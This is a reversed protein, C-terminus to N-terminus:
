LDSPATAKKCEHYNEFRYTLSYNFVISGSLTGGQRLHLEIVKIKDHNRSLRWIWEATGVFVESHTPRGYKDILLERIPDFTVDLGRAGIGREGRVACAGGKRTGDIVIGYFPSKGKYERTEWGYGNVNWGDDPKLPDGMCVGLPCAAATNGITLLTVMLALALLAKM